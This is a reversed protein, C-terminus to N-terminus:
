RGGIRAVCRDTDEVEVRVEDRTLHLQVCRTELWYTVEYAAAVGGDVATLGRRREGHGLVADLRGEDGGWGAVVEDGVLGVPDDVEEAAVRLADVLQRAEREVERESWWDLLTLPIGVAAIVAAIILGRRRRGAAEDADFVAEDTRDAM